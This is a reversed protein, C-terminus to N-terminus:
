SAPQSGCLAHLPLSGLQVVGCSSAFIFTWHAAALLNAWPCTSLRKTVRAFDHRDGDRPTALEMSVCPNDCADPAFDNNAEPVKTDNIIKDFEEQFDPDNELCESWDEPNPKAGDHSCSTKSKRSDAVSRLRLSM